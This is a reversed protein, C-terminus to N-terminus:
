GAPPKQPPVTISRHQLVRVQGPRGGKIKRLHRKRTVIVPAKASDRAQSHWLAWAAAQEIVEDPIERGAARIIAHSGPVGEAHLWIDDPGAMKWTVRENQLANRGIVVEFGEPTTIRIPQSRPPKPRKGKPESVLGSALLAERLEEIQPTNDALRVDSEIQDLWALDRDVEALLAPIKEAARKKKHYRAFYAQANESPGLTPDLPIHLTEEGTDALLEADGPKIQWAYALIWHGSTRLRAVDVEGVAQEGLSARRGLLKKRAQALLALAQKRRGAYSDGGLTADYYQRAAASISRYPTLNGLHTLEYPAFAAPQASEDLAVTPAWGGQIPLSRFWDLVGALGAPTLNPHSVDALADGTARFAIERAALPSLGALAAVLARWVPKGAPTQHLMRAVDAERVLDIPLKRAQPPPPQYPHGPRVIRRSRESREFHRLSALVDGQGDNLVLNSWRGMIEAALVSEGQAPHSFSLYFLREWGPQIVGTLRAGRLRKRALLLFPADREVGRRAKEDLLYARPARADASLLLWHRRGDRFIELALSHEDPQLAAQVRGGTLTEDLERRVAALTIADM